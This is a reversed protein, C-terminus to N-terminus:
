LSPPLASVVMFVYPMGATVAFGVVVSCLYMNTCSWCHVNRMGILATSIQLKKVILCTWCKKYFLIGFEEGDMGWSVFLYTNSLCLLQTKQCTGREGVVIDKSISDIEATIVLLVRGPTSWGGKNVALSHLPVLPWTQEDANGPLALCTDAVIIASLGQVM